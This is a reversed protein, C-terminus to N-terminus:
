FLEIDEGPSEEKIKCDFCLHDEKNGHKRCFNVGCVECEDVAGEGCTGIACTDM